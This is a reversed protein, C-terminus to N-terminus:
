YNSGPTTPVYLPGPGHPVLGGSGSVGGTSTDYGRATSATASKPPSQSRARGAGVDVVKTKGVTSTRSMVSATLRDIDAFLQGTPALAEQDAGAPPQTTAASAASLWQASPPTAARSNSGARRSPSTSGGKAKSATTRSPSSSRGAGGSSARRKAKSAPSNSRGRGRGTSSPRYTSGLPDAIHFHAGRGAPVWEHFSSPLHASSGTHPLASPAMMRSSNSLRRARPPAASGNAAGNAAAPPRKMARDVRDHVTALQDRLRLVEGELSNLQGYFQDKYRAMQQSNDSAPAPQLGGVEQELRALESVYRQELMRIHSMLESIESAHVEGDNPPPENLSALHTQLNSRASHLQALLAERDSTGAKTREMALMVDQLQQQQAELHSRQGAVWDSSSRMAGRSGGLEMEQQALALASQALDVALEMGRRAEAAEAENPANARVVRRGAAYMQWHLLCQLVLRHDRAALATNAAHNRSRDAIQDAQWRRWTYFAGMLISGDKRGRMQNVAQYILVKRQDALQLAVDSEDVQLLLLPCCCDPRWDM